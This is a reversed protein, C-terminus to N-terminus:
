LGKAHVFGQESEVWDPDKYKVFEGCDYKSTVFVESKKILVLANVISHHCYKCVGGVDPAVPEVTIVGVTNANECVEAAGCNAAWHDKVPGEKVVYERRRVTAPEATVYLEMPDNGLIKSLHTCTARTPDPFVFIVTYKLPTDAPVPADVYVIVFLVVVYGKRAIPLVFGADPRL